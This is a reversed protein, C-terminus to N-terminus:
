GRGPPVTADWEADPDGEDDAWGRRRRRGDAGNGNTEPRRGGHRPAVTEYRYPEGSFSDDPSLSNLVTGVLPADVQRLLEVARVLSRKSTKGASTVLLTTDAMRALVLSDTVPLVPPCDLVVVDYTQGLVDILRRAREGSLLESPNPPPYGAPLVSLNPVSAATQIAQPLTVDGILVATLGPTLPVDLVEEMRPRRLDGGVLVVRDGAQAFAIALNVAVLTKGEGPSPSTVQVVRVQREVALFKVSTRLLRFAEAAPATPHSVTVLDTGADFKPILGLTSVGTVRDIVEKNKVSDDFYDRIFALASGLFLGFVLGIALNLPLNPSVPTDPAGAISLVEAGGGVALEVGLNIDGLIGRIRTAEAQLPDLEPALEALRAERLDFLGAADGPSRAIQADLEAVPARITEIQTEIEALLGELQRRTNSLKERDAAQRLEVYTTAYVNVLTAAGVPDPSVLSLEVVSSTQNNNADSALPQAKVKFVDSKPLSGEYAAVVSFRMSSSRLFAAESSAQRNLDGSNNNGFVMAVPDNVGTTLVQASVRYKPEPILSAAVAIGLFILTTAIVLWRRRAIVGLYSRLDPEELQQDM